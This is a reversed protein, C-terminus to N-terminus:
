RTVSLRRTGLPEAHRNGRFKHTPLARHVSTSSAPPAPPYRNARGVHPSARRFTSSYCHHLAGASGPCERPSLEPSHRGPSAVIIQIDATYTAIRMTNTASAIPPNDVRFHITPFRSSRGRVTSWVVLSRQGPSCRPFVQQTLVERHATRFRHQAWAYPHAAADNRIAVRYPDCVRHRRLQCLFAKFTGANFQPAFHDM